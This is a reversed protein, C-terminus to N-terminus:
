ILNFTLSQEGEKLHVKQEDVGGHNNFSKSQKCSKSKNMEHGCVQGEPDPNNDPLRGVLPDVVDVSLGDVVEAFVDYSNWIRGNRKSYFDHSVVKTKLSSSSAELAASNRAM